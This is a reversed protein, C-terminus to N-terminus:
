TKELPWKIRSAGHAGGATEGAAFLGPVSTRGNEDIKIGGVMDHPYPLIELPQSTFNIGARAAKEWLSPCDKKWVDEPVDSVDLYVGGHSGGRGEYIEQGFARLTEENDIELDGKQPFYKRM